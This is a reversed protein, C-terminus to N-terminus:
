LTISCLYAGNCSRARLNINSRCRHPQKRSSLSCKAHVGSLSNIDRPHPRSRMRGNRTCARLSNTNPRGEPRELTDGEAAPTPTVDESVRLLPPRPAGPGATHRRTHAAPRPRLAGCSYWSAGCSAPQVGHQAVSLLGTNASGLPAQQYGPPLEWVRPRAQSPTAGREM